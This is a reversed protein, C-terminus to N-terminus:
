SKSCWCNFRLRSTKDAKTYHSKNRRRRWSFDHDALINRISQLSCNLNFHLRLHTATIRRQGRYKKVYRAIASSEYKSVVKRLPNKKKKIVKKFGTARGNSGIHKKRINAVTQHSINARFTQRLFTCVDRLSKKKGLAIIAGKIEQPLM